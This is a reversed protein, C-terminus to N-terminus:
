KSEERGNFHTGPMDQVMGDSHSLTKWGARVLVDRMARFSFPAISATYPVGMSNMACINCLLAACFTMLGYLGMTGGIVICALRLLAIPEYLAPVVFSSIATLAVIIVMPAGILGATVASDGIVLAGVISVAHGIPQPLRLGAERIVEFIIHVVLAELMLPMPTTAEARAVNFLLSPPLLEQHFTGIAVYLGPLLITLIFAFYKLWRIMTAYYPRYSYDDMSQFNEVFLYPIILVFPTGDVMVGIRGEVIKGSLTDPRETVGVDSFLSLPRNELYPQIYGSELVSDLKISNLRARVQQLLEPAVKDSLYCLCINTRSTKGIKMGEFKLTPTRLRRRMISVNMRLNEVFGERSGRLVAEGMPESVSRQEYEQYGFVLAKDVGDLLLVGFGSLLKEIVEDWNATQAQDVTSLVQERIYRFLEEADKVPARLRSLPENVSLNLMQKDVTNDLYVIAARHGATDFERITLDQANDFEGRIYVLNELLSAYLVKPETDPPPTPASSKDARRTLRGWFNEFM